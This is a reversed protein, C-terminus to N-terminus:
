HVPFILVCETSKTRGEWVSRRHRSRRHREREVGEELVEGRAGGAEGHGLGDTGGRDEDWRVAVREGLESEEGM